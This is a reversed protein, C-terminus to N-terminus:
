ETTMVQQKANSPGKTRPDVKSPIDHARTTGGRRPKKQTDRQGVSKGGWVGLCKGRRQGGTLKEQVSIDITM